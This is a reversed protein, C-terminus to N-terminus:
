LARIVASIERGGCNCSSKIQKLKNLFKFNRKNLDRLPKTIPFYTLCIKRFLPSQFSPHPHFLLLPNDAPFILLTAAGLHILSCVELRGPQSLPVQSAIVARGLPAM